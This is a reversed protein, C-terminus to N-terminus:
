HLNYSEKSPEKMYTGPKAQNTYPRDRQHYCTGSELKSVRLSKSTTRPKFRKPLELLRLYLTMCQVVDKVPNGHIELLVLLFGQQLGKRAQLHQFILFSFIRLEQFPVGLTGISSVRSM